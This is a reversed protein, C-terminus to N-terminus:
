YGDTRASRDLLQVLRSVEASRSSTPSTTTVSSRTGHHALKEYFSGTTVLHGFLQGPELLSRQSNVRGLM